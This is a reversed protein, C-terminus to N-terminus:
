SSKCCQIKTCPTKGTAELCTLAAGCRNTTTQQGIQHHLIYAVPDTACLIATNLRSFRDPGEKHPEDIHQHIGNRGVQERCSYQGKNPENNIEDGCGVVRIVPAKQIFHQTNANHVRGDYSTSSAPCAYSIAIHSCFSFCGSAVSHLKPLGFM